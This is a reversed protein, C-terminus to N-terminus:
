LGRGTGRLSSGRWGKYRAQAWLGPPAFRAPLDMSNRNSATRLREEELKRLYESKAQDSRIRESIEAALHAEVYKQFTATWKGLDLGYSTDNSVYRIYIPTINAYFYGQEFSYETLPTTEAGDAFVANTRIWDTPKTFAYQYDFVPSISSDDAAEISRIAWNWYGMELCYNLSDSYIEDIVRRTEVDDTLASLSQGGILRIAGNYLHLKSAM